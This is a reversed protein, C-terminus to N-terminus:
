ARRELAAVARAAISSYAISFNPNTALAERLLRIATVDHGLARQIMGAHFLFLASRTGLELARKSYAAAERDRGNAHLAWAYADAVHVSHRRGWETRAAALADRPSGHDADFLALELDVNVGNARFLDQEARVLAYQHRADAEDGASRYLDGLAIVFEPLPYRETVRTFLEIARDIRGDAWAVKALGALPPVYDPALEIARRYEVAAQRARGANWDLEGLQFTAWAADAATGAAQEAARMAVIAGAVDGQLERAYSVRAYSSLDPRTDVMTQLTSFAADYRGLELQADGIVGDVDANVPAIARAREGWRLAGAFDHRALALTGMGVLAEFNGDADISLSRELASEAKPYYTPDATVRAETVYALGLSAFGKWDQPLVRLRRQLNAISDELSGGVIPPLLVSEAPAAVTAPGPDGEHAGLLGIGGVVLLAAALVPVVGLRIARRM